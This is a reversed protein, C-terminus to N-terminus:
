VSWFARTEFGREDFLVCPWQPAHKVTLDDDLLVRFRRNCEVHSRLEDGYLALRAVGCQLQKFWHRSISDWVVRTLRISM